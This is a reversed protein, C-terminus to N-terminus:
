EIELVSSAISLDSFFPSSLCGELYDGYPIGNKQLFITLTTLEKPISGRHIFQSEKPKSEAPKTKDFGGKEKTEILFDELHSL